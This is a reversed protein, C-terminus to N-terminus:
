AREPIAEEGSPCDRPGGSVFREQLRRIYDRVQRLEATAAQTRRPGTRPNEIESVLGDAIRELEQVFLAAQANDSGDGVQMAQSHVHGGVDVCRNPLPRSAAAVEGLIRIERAEVARVGSGRRIWKACFNTRLAFSFSLQDEFDTAPVPCGDISVADLCLRLSSIEGM